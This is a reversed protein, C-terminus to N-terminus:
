HARFLLTEVNSLTKFRKKDFRECITLVVLDLAEFPVRLYEHKASPQLEAPTSGEEFRSPVKQKRSRQMYNLWM